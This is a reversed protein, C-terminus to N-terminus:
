QLTQRSIWMVKQKEVNMEMRWSRGVDVLSDTMGQLLTEEESVKVLEDAYKVANGGIRVEEHVTHTYIYM